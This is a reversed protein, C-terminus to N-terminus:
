FRCYFNYVLNQSTKVKTVDFEGKIEPSIIMNGYFERDVSVNKPTRDVMIHIARSSGDNRKQLYIMKTLKGVSIDSRLLRLKQGDLIINLAKANNLTFIDVITEFSMEQVPLSSNM